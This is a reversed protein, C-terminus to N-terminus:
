EVVLEGAFGHLEHQITFVGIGDPIFEIRTIEGPLRNVTAPDHCLKVYVQHEAILSINHITVPMDEQVVMRDLYVRFDDVSHIFAFIQAGRDAPIERAEELTKVVVLNAEFNHGVNRMKFEGVQDPAFEM